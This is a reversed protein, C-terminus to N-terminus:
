SDVIDEIEAKVDSLRLPKKFFARVPLGECQRELGSLPFGTMFLIKM